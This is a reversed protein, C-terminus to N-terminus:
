RLVVKRTVSGHGATLRTFYVGPGPGHWSVRHTGAALRKSLLKDVPRGSIDTVALQCFVPSELSFIFEVPGYSPNPWTEFLVTEKDGPLPLGVTGDTITFPSPTHSGWSEGEQSVTCRIYCNNSNEQPVVWQYSGNDPLSDAILIWEEPGDTSYELRVLSVPGVAPVTSVWKIERISEQWFVEGGRPFEPRVSLMMATNSEKYCRLQNQYDWWSGVEYLMVLDPRGNHDVDGGTRFAQAYGPDETTFTADATWNGAGDGLFLSFTGYGFAPLDTYGDGDMDCMQTLEFDGSAPLGGSWKVWDGSVDEWIWAELGGNDNVFALDMGGDNDVDGFSPGLRGLLDGGPLNGDALIFNGTGDGFYVTGLQHGAVFDMFGDRNVDGFQFIMDSNGDLFGFRHTWTGDLNNLYIHIGSCCGFSISGLDLDGDNDVDAFDTSFMGWDEGASALGDDWPTWATGTGDGLAVEILQDGLDSGSYNHHMGYGVDMFGDLNVDGAAIGGYGFDGEMHVNWNGAGDGFYVMVGHEGSNILPSGHDGISIIDLAGDQNIDAFELETKGGEWEPSTLGTSSNVYTLSRHGDQCFAHGTVCFSLFLSAAFLPIIPKM